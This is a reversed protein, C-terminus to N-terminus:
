DIAHTVVYSCLGLYLIGGVIVVWSSVLLVMMIGPSTRGVRALPTSRVASGHM